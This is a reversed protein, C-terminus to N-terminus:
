FLTLQNRHQGGRFYAACCRANRTVHGLPCRLRTGVGIGLRRATVAAFVGEGDWGQGVLMDYPAVDTTVRHSPEDYHPDPCPVCSLYFGELKESWAVM